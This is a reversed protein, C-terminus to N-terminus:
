MILQFIVNQIATEAPPKEVLVTKTVLSWGM